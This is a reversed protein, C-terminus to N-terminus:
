YKRIENLKRLFERDPKIIIEQVNNIYQRSYGMKKELDRLRLKLKRRMERIRKSVRYRELTEEWYEKNSKM